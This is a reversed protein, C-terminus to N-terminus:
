IHLFVSLHVPISVTFLKTSDPFNIGTLQIEHSLNLNIRPGSRALQKNNHYERDTSSDRVPNTRVNMVDMSLVFEACNKKTVEVFNASSCIAKSHVM